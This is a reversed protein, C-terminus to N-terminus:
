RASRCRRSSGPLCCLSWCAGGPAASSMLLPRDAYAFPREAPAVFKERPTELLARIIERDNVESPRIQNDVMRQRLAAFDTM